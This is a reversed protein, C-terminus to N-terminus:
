QKATLEKRDHTFKTQKFNLEELSKWTIAIHFVANNKFCILRDLISTIFTIQDNPLDVM